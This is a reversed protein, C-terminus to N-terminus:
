VLNEDEKEKLRNSVEFCRLAASFKNAKYYAIGLYGYIGPIRDCSRICRKLFRLTELPNTKNKTLLDNKGLQFLAQAHFPSLKIIELLEM